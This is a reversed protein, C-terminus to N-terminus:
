KSCLQECSRGWCWWHWCLRQPMSYWSCCKQVTTATLQM